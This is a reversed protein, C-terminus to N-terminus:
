KGMVTSRQQLGEDANPLLSRTVTGVGRSAHAHGGDFIAVSAVVSPASM